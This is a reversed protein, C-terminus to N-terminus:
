SGRWQDELSGPRKRLLKVFRRTANEYWDPNEDTSSWNYSYVIEFGLVSVVTDFWNESVRFYPISVEGLFSFPEVMGDAALQAMGQFRAEWKEVIDLYHDFDKFYLQTPKYHEYQKVTLTNIHRAESVVLFLGGPVLVRRAERLLIPVQHIHVLADKFHIGELSEDALPLDDAHAQVRRGQAQNLGIESVDLRLVPPCGLSELSTAAKGLGAAMDLVRPQKFTKTLHYYFPALVAQQYETGSPNSKEYLHSGSGYRNLYYTKSRQELGM